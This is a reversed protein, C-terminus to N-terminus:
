PQDELDSRAAPQSRPVRVGVKAAATPSRLPDRWGDWPTGAGSPGPADGWAGRAYANLRGPRVPGPAARSTTSRAPVLRKARGRPQMIGLVVGGPRPQLSVRLHTPSCRPASQGRRALARRRAARPVWPAGESEWRGLQRQDDQTTRSVELAENAGGSAQAMCPRTGRGASRRSPAQLGPNASPRHSESPSMM